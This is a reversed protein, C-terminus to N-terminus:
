LNTMLEYSKELNERAWLLAIVYDSKLDLDDSDLYDTIYDKFDPFLLSQPNCSISLLQKTKLLEDYKDEILNGDKDLFKKHTLDCCAM